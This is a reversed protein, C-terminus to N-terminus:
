LKQHACRSTKMEGLNQTKEYVQRDFTHYIIIFFKIKSYM